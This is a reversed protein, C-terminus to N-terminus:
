QTVGCVHLQGNVEACAVAEFTGPHSGAVGKVDGFGDWRDEHRVTHWMGGDATVGAVHLSEITWRIEGFLGYDHTVRQLPPHPFPQAVPVIRQLRKDIAQPQGGYFVDAGIQKDRELSVLM